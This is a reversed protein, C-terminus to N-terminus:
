NRDDCIQVAEVCCRSFATKFKRNVAFGPKPTACNLALDISRRPLFRTVRFSM